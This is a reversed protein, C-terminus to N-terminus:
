SFLVLTKIRNLTKDPNELDMPILPLVTTQKDHPKADESEYNTFTTYETKETTYVNRIESLRSGEEISFTESNLFLSVVKMNTIDISIGISFSYKSCSECLGHLSFMFIGSFKASGSYCEYVTNDHGDIVFQITGTRLTVKEITKHPEYISEIKDCTIHTRHSCFPCKTQYGFAEHLNNFEKM